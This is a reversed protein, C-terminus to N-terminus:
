GQARRRQFNERLEANSPDLLEHVYGEFSASVADLFKNPSVLIVGDRVAIPEPLRNEIDISGRTMGDHFLGCRAAVYFVAAHDSSLKPFVRQLASCFFEKSSRVGSEGRRCQENGELYSIAIMLVVFGADHHEQLLKGYRFFWGRVRDAYMEIHIEIGNRPYWKQEANHWVLDPQEDFIKLHLSVARHPENLNPPQLESDSV